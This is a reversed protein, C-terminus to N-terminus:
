EAMEQQMGGNGLNVHSNKEKMANERKDDINTKSLSIFNGLNIWFMYNVFTDCALKRDNENRKVLKLM